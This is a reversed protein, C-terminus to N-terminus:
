RDCFSDLPIYGTAFQHWPILKTSMRPERSGLGGPLGSFEGSLSPRRISDTDSIQGGEGAAVPAAAEFSWLHPQNTPQQFSEMRLDTQRYRSGLSDSEKVTHM